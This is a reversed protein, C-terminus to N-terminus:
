KEGRRLSSPAVSVTKAGTVVSIRRVTKGGAPFKWFGTQRDNFTLVIQGNDIAFPEITKQRMGSWDHFHSTSVTTAQDKTVSMQYIVHRLSDGIALYQGDWELGGAREFKEDLKVTSLTSGGSPLEALVSGQRLNRAGNVFLNGTNDYTCYLYANMGYVKYTQGTGYVSTYVALENGSGFSGETVAIDGTKPDTACSVAGEDTYLQAIPVTGGRAYELLSAGYTVWVNGQTDSCVGEVGEEFGNLSGVQKGAFSYIGVEQSQAMYILDGGSSTDHSMWSGVHAFRALSTNTAAPVGAGGKGEVLSLAPQSHTACGALVAALAVAAYPSIRLGM